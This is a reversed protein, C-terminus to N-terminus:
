CRGPPKMWTIAIVIPAELALTKIREFEEQYQHDAPQRSLPRIGSSIEAPPAAM